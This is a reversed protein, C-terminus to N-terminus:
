TGAKSLLDIVSMNRKYQLHKKNVTIIKNKGELKCSLKRNGKKVM